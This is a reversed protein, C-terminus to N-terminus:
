IEAQFEKDEDAQKEIMDSILRSVSQYKVNHLYDVYRRAKDSIALSLTKKKSREIKENM